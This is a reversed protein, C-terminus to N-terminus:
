PRQGLPINWYRSVREINGSNFRVFCGAPVKKIGEFISHEEPIYRYGLYCDIGEFSIDPSHGLVKTIATIVSAFILTNNKFYYFLPKKGFRDKALYLRQNKCKLHNHLLQQM